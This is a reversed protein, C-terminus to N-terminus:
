TNSSLKRFWMDLTPKSFPTTKNSSLMFRHVCQGLVSLNKAEVKLEIAGERTDLKLVWLYRFLQITHVPFICWDTAEASPALYLSLCPCLVQLCVGTSVKHTLNPTPCLCKGPSALPLRPIPHEAPLAKTQHLCHMDWPWLGPQEISHINSAWLPLRSHM